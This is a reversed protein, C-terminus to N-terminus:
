EDNTKTKTKALKYAPLHLRIILPRPARIKRDFGRVCVFGRWFCYQIGETSLGKFITTVSTGFYVTRRPLNWILARPVDIPNLSSDHDAFVENVQFYTGNLPFRGRMATRCPILLTGRVIQSKEERISNCSFCTKESCLKGSEQSGCKREPPQISNTTEGPAWIALLYSSPDDPERRDLGQLLPHSDPLEYVQHETRLRSIYKLKPTPISAVESSLAVLAKSMDGEQLEMNNEEMYNQLNVKFEEVDLKITPIEEPDENFADEIDSQSIEAWESDPTEPMEIIPECNSIEFGAESHLNATDPLPLPVQKTAVSPQQDAEIPITSSVIRKEEPGPLALRASAFASAFHKCEGRMPCANCNPKKKTCFVKGFTIMQYHLEYLTRQDLKCLRPWLYKQISELMPYMELLHLQLSEPLPQLPVWGLRVAIRGVNTDVPFALHHLTLLRVCEVSKLGLGRISLLYEKAKEPPVDRLWELDIGGHEKVLRNLFDKIRGALVNNMGREKIAQSIEGVNACRVAEWDLSDMTGSNREKKRGDSYAQKRLSDWEFKNKNVRQVKEKKAKLTDTNTASFANGSSYIQEKFTPEPVKNERIDQGEVIPTCNVVESTEGSFNSVNSIQRLGGNQRQAQEEVLNKPEAFPMSGSQITETRERQHNHCWNPIKETLAQPQLSCLPHVPHKSLSAYHDVTTAEQASSPVQQVITESEYETMSGIRKRLCNVDKTKTIESATLPLLSKSEKELVELSELELVRSDTTMHLGYENSPIIPGQKHHSNFPCISAFTGKLGNLKDLSSIQDDFEPCGLHNQGVKSSENFSLGGNGHSYFEQFKSSGAMQLLETFTSANISNPKCGITLDEAESNSESCSGIIEPTQANPSNVSNQFSVVDDVVRTDEAEVLSASGTTLTDKENEPSEHCMELRRECVVFQKGRSNGESSVGGINSGFSEISSVVERQEIHETEHHAMSSETCVPQSSMKEQWKISDDLDPTCTEPEEVSIGTEDDYCARHNSTSKLPFQAALSMYASSSLHDSVNQTLFVGIVSDVVSGKWQSFRRDGLVLHMRAIFSDARGSFVTREEEWWKEKDEYTGEVDESDEKGMLLNWVRNTEPDLEVKARPRRKKTLDYSEKYPIMIGHGGFPVLANQEQRIIKNSRGNIDLCNLRQVIEDIPDIYKRIVGPLGANFAGCFNSRAKIPVHSRRSFAISEIAKWGLTTGRSKALPQGYDSAASVHEQLSVENTFYSVSLSPGRKTRQKTNIKSHNDAVLAEMCTRPGKSNEIGQMDASAQARKPVTHPLHNFKALATLSALNRVRTCGKSRKKTTREIHGLTLMCGFSQQKDVNARSLAETHPLLGASYKQKPFIGEVAVSHAHVDLISKSVGNNLKKTAYIDEFQLAPIGYYIKAACSNANADKERWAAVRWPGYESITTNKARETRKKKYIEPFYPGLNSNDSHYENVRFIKQYVELSNYRAGILNMRRLQAQDTTHCYARKSGRAGKANAVWAHTSCNSDNESKHISQVGSQLMCKVTIKATETPLVLQDIGDANTNQNIPTCGSRSSNKNPGAHGPENGNGTLANLDERSPEMLEMGLCQSESNLTFAHMKTHLLGEEHGVTTRPNKDRTHCEIDFNLARKCSKVPLEFTPDFTEGMEDASDTTSTKLGKKRVYTRKVLPAEKNSTSTKLGKKRVYTRKLLPTEMNSTCKPTVPLPRTKPKGERVVKPRHKKRKPKQRPTKNLNISYDGDKNPNHHETLSTSAAASLSETISQRLEKDCHLEDVENETPPIVDGHQDKEQNPREDICFKTIESLQNSEVRKGQDPTVPVFQFSITSNSVADDITKPPLNLDYTPRNQVPFRYQSGELNSSEQLTAAESAMSATLSLLDTFPINWGSMAKEMAEKYSGVNGSNGRIQGALAAEWNNPGKNLNVSGMSDFGAVAGYSLSIEQLNRPSPHNGQEYASLPLPRTPIPKAPTVPIWSGGNKVEKEESILVGKGFEM